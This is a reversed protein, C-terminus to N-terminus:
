KRGHNKHFGYLLEAERRASIADEKLRFYGLCFTKYNIKIKAVWRRSRTEWYVGPKGSTNNKYLKSNKHNESRGVDRINQKRNDNKIGNIHDIEGSPPSGYLWIWIIRHAMHQTGDVVVYVYDKYKGSGVVDGVQASPARYILRTMYGTDPDYDFLEKVREQTPYIM